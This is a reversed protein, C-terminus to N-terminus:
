NSKNANNLKNEIAKNAATKFQSIYSSFTKGSRICQPVSYVYGDITNDISSYTVGFDSCLSAWVIDLMAADEPSESVKRGLLKEYYYETVDDSYYSLCEIVDSVMDKNIINGPVCMYGGWNLSRYGSTDKQAEEYMPYPLVGFKVSQDKLAILETTKMLQMFARNQSLTVKTPEVGGAVEKNEWFYTTYSDNLSSIKTVLKTFKKNVTSNSATLEYKGTNTNKSIISLNSSQIFGCFPVWLEGTIGYIDSDDSGKDQYALQAIEAMKDLTWENNNVYDYMTTGKLESSFNNYLGKNFAVVYTNALNFNSYGLYHKGNLALEDMISKNWYDKDISLSSLQDLDLLTDSSILDYLAYYSHTLVLHYKESGAKVANKVEEAYNAFAATEGNGEAAKWVLNVNLAKQVNQQRQYLSDNMGDGTVKDAFFYKKQFMDEVSYITFTSGNYDTDDEVSDPLTLKVGDDGNNGSDDSKDNGCAVLAPLVFAIVLVLCMIKLWKKM